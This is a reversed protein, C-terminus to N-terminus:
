DDEPRGSEHGSDAAYVAMVMSCHPDDAIADNYGRIIDRMIGQDYDSSDYVRGIYHTPGGELDQLGLRYGRTARGAELGTAEKGM